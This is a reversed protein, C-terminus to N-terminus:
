LSIHNLLYSNQVHMERKFRWRTGDSLTRTNRSYETKNTSLRTYSARKRETPASDKHLAPTSSTWHKNQAWKKCYYINSTRSLTNEFTVTNLLFWLNIGLWIGTSLHFILQSNVNKFNEDTQFM